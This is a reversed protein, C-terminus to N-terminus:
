MPKGGRRVDINETGSKTLSTRCARKLAIAAGKHDSQRAACFFMERAPRTPGGVVFMPKGQYHVAETLAAGYYVGAGTIAEIGPVDLLSLSAGTAVILAHCSLETGDALTVYRYPDDVRVRTVEQATLIEAGLRIAQATARRALDAGSLGKSGLYKRNLFQHGTRRDGKDIL